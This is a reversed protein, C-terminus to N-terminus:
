KPCSRAQHPGLCKSCQHSRPPKASCKSQPKDVGCKGENWRLCIEVGRRNHTYQKGDHKPKSRYNNFALAIKRRKRIFRLARVVISEWGPRLRLTTRSQHSQFKKTWWGCLRLYVLTAKVGLLFGGTFVGFLLWWFLDTESDPGLEIFQTSM